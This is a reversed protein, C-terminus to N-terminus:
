KAGVRWLLLKSQPVKNIFARVTNESLTYIELTVGESFGAPVYFSNCNFIEVDPLNLWSPPEEIFFRNCSCLLLVVLYIYKQM